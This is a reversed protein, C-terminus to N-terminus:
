LKGEIKKNLFIEAKGLASYVIRQGAYGFLLALGFSILMYYEYDIIKKPAYEGVIYHAALNLILILASALLTDWDENWFIRLIENRAKDRNDNGLKIIVQTVHLGIGILQLLIILLYEM